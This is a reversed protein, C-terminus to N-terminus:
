AKVDVFGKQFVPKDPSPQGKHCQIPEVELGLLELQRTLMAQEAKVLGLTEPNDSWIKPQIHPPRLDVQIYLPGLGELSFSLMLRWEPEQDGQEREAHEQKSESDKDIRINFAHISGSSHQVPVEFFWSQSTNGSDSPNSQSQYLSNLQNFHIRNLMGALLKLIQGTSLEQDALIAGAKASASMQNFLSSLHPFILADKLLNTQSLGDIQPSSQTKTETQSEKHLASILTILQAKLDSGSSQNTSAPATAVSSQRANQVALAQAAAEQLRQTSLGTKGLATTLNESLKKFTQALSDQLSSTETATKMTSSVLSAANQKNAEGTSVDLSTTIPSLERLAARIFQQQSLAPDQSSISGALSLVRQILAANKEITQIAGDRSSIAAEFLAGSTSLLERTATAQQSPLDTPSSAQGPLGATSLVLPTHTGIQILTTAPSQNNETARTITPLAAKLSELAAFAANQAPSLKSPIDAGPSNTLNKNVLGKNALAILTNIGTELSVQKPMIKAMALQILPLLKDLSGNEINAKLGLNGAQFAPALGDSSQPRIMLVPDGSSKNDLVVNIAQGPTLAELTSIVVAKGAVQLLWTEGKSVPNELKLDAFPTAAQSINQIAAKGAQALVDQKSLVAPQLNERIPNSENKSASNLLPDSGPKPSQTKDQQGSEVLVQMASNTRQLVKAEYVKQPVLGLTDISSLVISQANKGSTSAQGVRESSPPNIDMLM